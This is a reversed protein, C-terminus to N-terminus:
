NFEVDFPLHGKADLKGALVDIAYKQSNPIMYGFIKRPIHELTKLAYPNGFHVVAFVKKSHALANIVSETRRTLGDTGLYAGTNCFTVFVVKKYNRAAFLVRENEMASSFEPILEVHSHPFNEKIREVIREPYYWRETVTEANNENIEYGNETVIVFMVDENPSDLAIKAGEDVVATICDRAVSYIIEEDEKTFVEKGDIEGDVFDMGALVRRVAEDLREESIMGDYYNKCLMAYAERTPTRYNPLIIDNGAEIAMGYVNEEGFRQLIGMMALSDTFCIGDFGKERIINIVKKSLSAPYEPDINGYVAHRTMICPLLGKEMLKVYPVLDFNLLENEDQEAVNETMHSDYPSRDGGPYHKGTSLYRNSRYVSAMVEAARAVKHPDDSFHRFVRFPGDSKLVDLVPGWTGNFGAERAEKAVGRAFARYCEDKDCAALSMLPIPPLPSTPFGQETDNFVLIPYDAAEIVRKVVERKHAPLQVCGLSHNKILEITFEIDDDFATDFKRACFVMGLKQEPTMDEIKLRIM